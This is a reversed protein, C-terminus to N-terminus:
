TALSRRLGFFALVGAILLLSSPEPVTVVRGIWAVSGTNTGNTLDAAFYAVGTGGAVDSCLNMVFDSTSLGAARSVRFELNGYYANVSGNPASDDISVGFYGYPADGGPTASFTFTDVRGNAVYQGSVPQVFHVSIGADGTGLTFAFPTHPGGSNLFGFGHNLGVFVDVTTSNIQSLRVSGANVLQSVQSVDASFTYNPGAIAPTTCVALCLGVWASHRFVHSMAAVKKEM